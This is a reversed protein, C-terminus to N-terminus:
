GLVGSICPLVLGALGRSCRSDAGPWDGVVGPLMRQALDQVNEDDLYTRATTETVRVFTAVV